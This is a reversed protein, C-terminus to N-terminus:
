DPQDWVYRIDDLYITCGSPNSMTNTVWCFGGIVQSLDKGTLDITYLTWDKSLTIVGTSIAPRVSDSYKGTIGGIKFEAVEGGNMGRAWFTLKKAGTLVDQLGPEGGRNNVPYVWYINAWGADNSKAASYKIEICELGSLSTVKSFSNLSIDGIDGNYNSPVFREYLSVVKAEPPPIIPEPEKEITFESSKCSGPTETGDRGNNRACVTIQNSGIDSSNTVWVWTPNTTSGTRPKGNLSFQYLIQDGDHDSAKATWTIASGENQPSDVDPSLRNVSPPHNPNNATSDNKNNDVIISITNNIQPSVNIIPSATIQSSNLSSPNYVWIGILGVLLAVIAPVIISPDKYWPKKEL